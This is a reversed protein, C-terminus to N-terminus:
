PRPRGGSRLATLLAALVSAVVWTPPDLHASTCHHLEYLLKEDASMDLWCTQLDADPLALAVEGGIRMSKTHRVMATKLMDVIEENKLRDLPPRSGMAQHYSNNMHVPPVWGARPRGRLFEEVKIGGDWHGILQAQEALQDLSTSFPTGTVCWKRGAVYNRLNALKSHTTSGKALLHAEDMILRHVTIKREAFARSACDSSRLTLLRAFCRPVVSPVPSLPPLLSAPPRVSSM